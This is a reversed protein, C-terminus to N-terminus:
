AGWPRGGPLPHVRAPVEHLLAAGDAGVASPQWAACGKAPGAEAVGPEPDQRHAGGGGVGQDGASGRGGLLRYGRALSLGPGAAATHRVDDRCRRVGWHTTHLLSWARLEVALGGCHGGRIPHRRTRPGCASPWRCGVATPARRDGTGCPQGGDTGPRVYPGAPDAGELALTAIVDM